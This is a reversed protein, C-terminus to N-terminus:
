AAGDKAAKKGANGMVKAMTAIVTAETAAAAEEAKKKQLNMLTRGGAENAARQAVLAEHVAKLQATMVPVEREMGISPDYFKLGPKTAVYLPYTVGNEDPHTRKKLLAIIRQRGINPDRGPQFPGDDLLSLVAGDTLCVLEVEKCGFQQVQRQQYSLKSLSVM